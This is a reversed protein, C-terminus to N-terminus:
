VANHRAQEEAWDANDLADKLSDIARSALDVSDEYREGCDFCLYEGAENELLQTERFTSAPHGRQGFELCAPCVLQSERWRDCNDPVCDVCRGDCGSGPERGVRGFGSGSEDGPYFVGQAFGPVADGYSRYGQYM